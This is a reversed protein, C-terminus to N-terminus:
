LNKWNINKRRLNSNLVLTVGLREEVTGIRNCHIRNEKCRAVIAVLPLM